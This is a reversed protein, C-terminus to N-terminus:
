LPSEREVFRGGLAAEVKALNDSFAPNHDHHLVWCLTDIAAQMGNRGAEDMLIPPTEGRIVGVLIDHARQIQREDRIM